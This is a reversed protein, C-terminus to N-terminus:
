DASQIEVGTMSFFREVVAESPPHGIWRCARLAHKRFEGERFDIADTLAAFINADGSLLTIHEHVIRELATGADFQEMTTVRAGALLPAVGAEIFGLPNSYPLVALVHDAPTIAAALATARAMALMERHSLSVSTSAGVLPSGYMVLCEEDRGTADAAGELRLGYHTGLEVRTSLLRARVTAFQPCEDVLVTPFEAPLLPALATTTFVAGVNADALQWAIDFTTAFPNVVLAGRGDCAALATLFASSTPLFIGARRGSLARVLSASRQLLTIGAAVLQRTEHTDLLGARASLAFPVLSLPDPMRLVTHPRSLARWGVNTRARM